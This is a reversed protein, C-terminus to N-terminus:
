LIVSLGVFAFSTAVSNRHTDCVSIPFLSPLIQLLCRNMFTNVSVYSIKDLQINKDHKVTKPGLRIIPVSM